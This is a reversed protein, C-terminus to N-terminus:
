PTGFVRAHLRGQLADVLEELQTVRQAYWQCQAETAAIRREDHTCTPGHTSASGTEDTGTCTPGPSFTHLLRGTTPTPVSADASVDGRGRARGRVSRRSPSRDLWAQLESAEQRLQEAAEAAAARDAEAQAAAARAEEIVRAGHEDARQTADAARALAAEAEAQEAAAQARAAELARALEAERAEVDGEFQKRRADLEAHQRAVDAHLKATEFALQDQAARSSNRMTRRLQELEAAATRRFCQTFAPASGM